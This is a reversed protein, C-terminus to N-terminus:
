PLPQPPDGAGSGSPLRHRVDQESLVRQTRDVASRGDSLWHGGDCEQLLSQPSHDAYRGRARRHGGHRKRLMRQAGGCPSTTSEGTRIGIGARRNHYCKNGRVFQKSLAGESIGIGARVNQTAPTISSWPTQRRAHGIGAYFNEFCINEEITASSSGRMSGIGGGMNRYTVNRVIHPSVQKGEAGTIAIGTYGIHHVINNTVTCRTVGVVAIGATGPAGINEHSQEEGQTAHHKNWEADDYNGIGTVTFGDLTSDEAMAVGAGQADKYSGDLITAEARKLGLEGKADDGASKVTVGAKLRIREKYTGASVLVTDGASAADIGAQITQHDQPVRVTDAALSTVAILPSILMAAVVPRLRHMIRCPAQNTSCM